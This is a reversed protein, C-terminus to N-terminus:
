VEQGNFASETAEFTERSFSLAIASANTPIVIGFAEEAELEVRTHLHALHATNRPNFAATNNM